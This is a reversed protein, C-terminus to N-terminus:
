RAGPPDIAELWRIARQIAPDDPTRALAARFGALAEPYLGLRRDIEALLAVAGADTALSRRLAERLRADDVTVTRFQGAGRAEGGTRDLTRVTWYYLGGPAIMGAPVDIAPATSEGAFIRKGADDDVEVAYRSAGDAPNFRLTLPEVLVVAHSPRLGTIVPGRLRVAGPPGAPRSADLAAIRPLTPLSALEQVPGSTSTLQNTAITVRANPGLAFRRGGALVLVGRAGAGLELTAGLPLADFRQAQSRPAPPTARMAAGGSLESIIAALPRPAAEQASVAGWCVAGCLATALYGALSQHSRM